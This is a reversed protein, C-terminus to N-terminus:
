TLEACVVVMSEQDNYGGLQQAYAGQVGHKGQLSTSLSPETCVFWGLSM